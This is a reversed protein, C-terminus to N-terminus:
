SISQGSVKDKALLQDNNPIAIAIALHTVAVKENEVTLMVLLLALIKLLTAILCNREFTNNM